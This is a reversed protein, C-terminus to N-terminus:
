LAAIESNITLLRSLPDESETISRGMVLYDAGALLADQPTMVRRQDAAADGALRIGPTVLKFAAGFQRRMEQAEQASCVVGDLGEGQALAALRTAVEEPSGNVGIDQLDSADMSTLVTVAILLPPNKFVALSERAAALM